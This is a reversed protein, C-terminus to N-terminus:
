PDEYVEADIDGNLFAMSIDVTELELDETTTIVIVAHMAAMRVTSAFVENYHIGQVQSFGQVVVRGKYKDISGDPKRKIKFVWRSGIAQRGLPLQALEWTENELHAEIEVLVAAIWRKSDPRGLVNALTRLEMNTSTLFVCEIADVLPIDIEGAEMSSNAEFLASPQRAWSHWKEPLPNSLSLHHKFNDTLGRVAPPTQPCEIIDPPTQPHEVDAPGPLWQTPSPAPAPPVVPPVCIHVVLHAPNPAHVPALGDNALPQFPAVPVPAVQLPPLSLDAPIPPKPPAIPPPSPDVSVDVGTLGPKHFPFISKRFVTSDM